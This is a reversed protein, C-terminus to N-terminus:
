GAPSYSLLVKGNAFARSGTLTLGLRRGVGEFMTRGAGLVVPNVVAQFADILGAAALQAVISGSGLIAIDPGDERKLAAVEGALDGIVATNAWSALTLSRSVVYKRMANMREAVAPSRERALASPWYGAMMDYTVRGFLLAGSGRANGATFAAFEPDDGGAHAWGMDGGADTFYGDLSINNFATLRRM